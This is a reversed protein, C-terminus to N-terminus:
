SKRWERAFLLGFHMKAEQGTTKSELIHQLYMLIMKSAPSSVMGLTVKRVPSYGGMCPPM